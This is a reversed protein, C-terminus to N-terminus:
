KPLPTDLNRGLSQRNKSCYRTLGV